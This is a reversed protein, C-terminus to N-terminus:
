LSPNPNEFDSIFANANDGGDSRLKLDKVNWWEEEELGRKGREKIRGEREGEWRRWRRGIWRWEGIMAAAENLESRARAGGAMGM